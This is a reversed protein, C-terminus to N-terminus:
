ESDVKEMKIAHTIPAASAQTTSKNTAPASSVKEAAEKAKLSEAYKDAIIIHEPDFRRISALDKQRDITQVEGIFPFSKTKQNSKNNMRAELTRLTQTFAELSPAGTTKATNANGGRVVATKETQVTKNGIKEEEVIRKVKFKGQMGGMIMPHTIFPSEPDFNQNTKDANELPKDSLFVIVEEGRTLTAMGAAMGSLPGINGGVYIVDLESATKEGKFNDEVAITCITFIQNKYSTTRQEVVEGHIVNKSTAYLDEVTMPVTVASEVSSVAFLFLSTLLVRIKM